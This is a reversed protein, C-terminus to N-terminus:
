AVSGSHCTTSPGHFSLDNVGSPAASKTGLGFYLPGSLGFSSPKLSIGNVEGSASNLAIREPLLM